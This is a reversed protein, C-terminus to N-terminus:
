RFLHSIGLAIAFVLLASLFPNRRLSKTAIRLHYLLM